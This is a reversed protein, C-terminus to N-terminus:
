NREFSMTVYVKLIFFKGV